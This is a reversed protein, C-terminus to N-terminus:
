FPLEETDIDVQTFGSQPDTAEAPASGPADGMRDPLDKMAKVLGKRVDDAVELKGIKTFPVGNFTGQRVNIGVIKGKLQGIHQDDGDFQFGPNSQEVCWIMNNLAKEDWEIHQRKENNPDPIQVKFDGKYKVDYKGGAATDNRYRKTYYGSWEGEIIDLRLVIQRDPATGDIKVNQIGAVYAGKPLMPFGASPKEGGKKYGYLKAM